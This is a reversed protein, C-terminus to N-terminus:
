PNETETGSHHLLPPQPRAQPLHRWLGGCGIHVRFKSGGFLQACGRPRRPECGAGGDSSLDRPFGGGGRWWWWAVVVVVVVGCHLSMRPCTVRPVCSFSRSFVSTRSRQWHITMVTFRPGSHHYPHRLYFFYSHRLLRGRSETRACSLLRPCFSIRLDVCDHLKLGKQM